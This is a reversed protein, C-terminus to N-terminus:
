SNSNPSKLTLPIKTRPKLYGHYSLKRILIFIMTATHGDKNLPM